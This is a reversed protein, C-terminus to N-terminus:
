AAATATTRLVAQVEEDTLRIGTRQEHYRLVGDLAYELRGTDERKRAAFKGRLKASERVGQTTFGLIRAAAAGSIFRESEHDASGKAVSDKRAM